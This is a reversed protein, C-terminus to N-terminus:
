DNYDSFLIPNHDIISAGIFVLGEDTVDGVKTFPGWDSLKIFIRNVFHSNNWTFPFGTKIFARDLLINNDFRNSRTLMIGHFDHGHDFDEWALIYHFGQDRDRKSARLIDGKYFM